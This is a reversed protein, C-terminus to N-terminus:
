PCPGYRGHVYCRTRTGTIGFTVTCSDAPCSGADEPLLGTQVLTGDLGGNVAIAELHFAYDLGCAGPGSYTALDSSSDAVVDEHSVEAALVISTLDAPNGSFVNPDITLSTKRHRGIDLMASSTLFMPPCDGEVRTISIDYTGEADNGGCAPAALAGLAALAVLATRRAAV